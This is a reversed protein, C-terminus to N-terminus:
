YTGGTLWKFLLSLAYDNQMLQRWYQETQPDHLVFVCLLLFLLVIAAAVSQRTLLVTLGDKQKKLYAPKKRM